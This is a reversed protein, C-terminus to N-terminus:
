CVQAHGHVLCVPGFTLHPSPASPPSTAYCTSSTSFAQQKSFLPLPSRSQGFYGTTTYTHPHHYIGFYYTLAQYVRRRSLCQLNPQVPKVSAAHASVHAASATTNHPSSLRPTLPVPPQTARAQRVRRSRRRSRCQRNCPCSPRPTLAVHSASAPARAHRVRRSRSTLPVPPHVPMVSAACQPPTRSLCQRTCPCSPRPANPRRADCSSPPPSSSPM